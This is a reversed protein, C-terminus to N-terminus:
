LLLWFLLVLFDFGNLFYSNSDEKVNCQFFAEDLDKFYEYYELEDEYSKQTYAGCGTEINKIGEYCCYIFNKKDNESLKCDSAKKPKIQECDSSESNVEEKETECEFEYDFSEKLTDTISLQLDYDMKTFPSCFSTYSYKEYCCYKYQKKDESSLVCNSSSKPNKITECNYELWKNPLGHKIWTFQPNGGKKNYRNGNEDVYSLQIGRSWSSTCEVVNCVEDDNNGCKVEKGIFVGIHKGTKNGTIYEMYLFRVGPSSFSFLKDFDESIDECGDILDKSTMERQTVPYTSLKSGEKVNYIDYGNLLAEIMGSCDCYFKGGIYNMMNKGPVNSYDSSKNVLYLLQKVLEDQNILCLSSSFLSFFLLVIKYNSIRM